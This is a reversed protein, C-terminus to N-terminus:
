IETGDNWRGLEESFAESLQVEDGGGHQRLLERLDAEDLSRVRGDANAPHHLWDFVLPTEDPKGEPLLDGIFSGNEVPM